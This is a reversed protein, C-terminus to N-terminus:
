GYKQFINAKNLLITHGLHIDPSTPDFGLKIILIKKLLLNKKLENIFIIEETNIKINKIIENIKTM